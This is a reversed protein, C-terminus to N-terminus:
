QSVGGASCYPLFPAGEGPELAPVIQRVYRYGESPGCIRGQALWRSQPPSEGTPWVVDVSHVVDVWFPALFARCLLELAPLQLLPCPHASVLSTYQVLRRPLSQTM